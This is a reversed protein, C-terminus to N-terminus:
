AHAWLMYLTIKKNLGRSRRKSINSLLFFFSASKTISFSALAASATIVIDRPKCILYQTVPIALAKEMNEM